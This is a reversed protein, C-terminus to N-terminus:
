DQGHFDYKGTKLYLFGFQTNNYSIWLVQESRPDMSDIKDLSFDVIIPRKTRYERIKNDKYPDTKWLLENKSNYASVYIHSSDLIFTYDLASDKLIVKNPPMTKIFSGGIINGQGDYQITTTQQGFLTLSFCLSVFFFLFKMNQIGVFLSKSYNGVVCLYVGKDPNRLL